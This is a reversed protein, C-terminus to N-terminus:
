HFFFKGDRAMDQMLQCPEFQEGYQDAFGKMMDTYKAIGEHDLMRFPGGRFPPFGMGFVAGIDGDSPSAIIGEQLCLVAENVFRSMLRNQMEGTSLKLDTGLFPKIIEVAEPNISKSGKKGENYTYFGKGAKRGLLGAEVLKSMVEAKGGSMRVGMDASALFSQVHHAIDVGVEDALTIPGVPLGYSKMAKDLQELGAGSEILACTEILFPGLCRNVYFGPVDKVVICTKGQKNGVNLASACVETSTGEHPIIELLPMMPVPSFYHMGIVNEPRKSATAIDKIPLASTNTAFVCHESVFNEVQEIVIHKLALNEPVAEIVMDATMFHRQWLDGDDTLPVINSALRDKEYQTMRRKKLKAAAADLIGSYGKEVSAVDRDKLLVRLGKEGSVQAIGAGMLGAGLVAVTNVTRNAPVEGFRSKKCATQGNFIGILSKSVTTAAMQAFKSAEYALAENRDATALGNKVSDIIANANPYHGSFSKGTNKDVGEQVKKWMIARGIPTDEIFRNVPSKKKRKPILEKSALKAATDIAVAELSKPDVLQDVLGIKKAKEPRVNSGTLMMKMAEQLGVLPHLLQTGGWGPLLGLKVEPLSLITKKSTTAIRYDCHLAWELGGGMCTGNIAALTPIGKAAILDFTKHGDMCIDKLDAKNPTSAIMGIDAGAIFNDPKASIFVVAKIDNNTAVSTKWMDEVEERMEGTITNMKGPGDLRIIAVGEPTIELPRFYTPGHTAQEGQSALNRARLFISPSAHHRQILKGARLM